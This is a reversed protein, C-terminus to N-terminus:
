QIKKISQGVQNNFYNQMPSLRGEKIYEIEVHDGPKIGDLLEQNKGRFETMDQQGDPMNVYVEAKHHVGKKVRKILEVEGREVHIETGQVAIM